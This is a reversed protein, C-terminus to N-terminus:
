ANTFREVVRNHDVGDVPPMPNGSGTGVRYGHAQVELASWVVGAGFERTLRARVEPSGMRWVEAICTISVNVTKTRGTLYRYLRVYVSHTPRKTAAAETTAARQKARWAAREEADLAPLEM